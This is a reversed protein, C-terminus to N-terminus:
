FRMTTRAWMLEETKSPTEKMPKPPGLTMEQQQEVLVRMEHGFTKGVKEAIDKTVKTFVDVESGDRAITYRLLQGGAWAMQPGRDVPTTMEFDQVKEGWQIM